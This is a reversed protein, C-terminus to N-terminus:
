LLHLRATRAIPLCHSKGDIAQLDHMIHMTKTDNFQGLPFVGKASFPSNKRPVFNDSAFPIEFRRDTGRGWHDPLFAGRDSGQHNLPVVLGRGWRFIFIEGRSYSTVDSREPVTWVRTSVMVSYYQRFADQNWRPPSVPSSLFPVYIYWNWGVLWILRPFLASSHRHLIRFEVTLINYYLEVFLCALQETIWAQECPAILTSNQVTVDDPRDSLTSSRDVTM